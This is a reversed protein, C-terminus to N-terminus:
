DLLETSGFDFFLAFHIKHEKRIKEIGKASLLESYDNKLRRYDINTIDVCLDLDNPFEKNTVFSGAIYVNTCGLSKLIKLFLLIREIKEKRSENFGLAKEFQGYTLIQTERLNGNKAFTLKM